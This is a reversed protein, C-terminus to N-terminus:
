GLPIILILPVFVFALVSSIVTAKSALLSDGGYKGVLLPVLAGTPMVFELVAVQLVLSDTVVFSLGAYLAVSGLFFRLFAFPILKWDVWLDKLKMRSVYYGIVLMSLPATLGGVMDFAGELVFPLKVQAFLLVIAILSAIFATSIVSRWPVSIKSLLESYTILTIRNTRGGVHSGIGSVTGGEAVLGSEQEARITRLQQDFGLFVFGLSFLFINILTVFVSALIITQDGLVAAIVPIGMFGTNTCIGSYIYCGIKQKPVRLVFASIVSVLFMIFFLAIGLVCVMPLQNAITAFDVSGVSAVIMCPLTVDMLLRNIKEVLIADTYKAKALFFGLIVVILLISLQSIAADIGGM